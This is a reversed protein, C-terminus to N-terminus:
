NRGARINEVIYHYYPNRTGGVCVPGDTAMQPCVAQMGTHTRYNKENGNIKALTKGADGAFWEEVIAAQEENGVQGWPIGPPGYNYDKAIGAPIARCYFEPQWSTHAIQWAHTLEHILLQGPAGWKNTDRGNGTYSNSNEFGDGLNVLITNDIPSVMTFPRDALGLLNTKRVRGYPITDGFVQKALTVDATSLPEQRVLGKAAASGVLFAPVLMGPGMVYYAGAVAIVGVIGPLSLRRIDVANAAEGLLVIAAGGSGFAMGAAALKAVFGAIDGALGFYDADYQFDRQIKGRRVNGWEAALIPANGTQNWPYVDKGPENSGHVTGKAVFAMVAAGPPGGPVSIPYSLTTVISADYSPFGTASFHGSYSYTGDRQIRLTHQGRLAVGDRTNLLEDFVVDGVFKSAMQSLSTPRNFGLGSRTQELSNASHGFIQKVTTLGKGFPGIALAPPTSIAATAGAALASATFQRRNLKSSM